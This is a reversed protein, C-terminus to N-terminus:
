RSVEIHRRAINKSIMGTVVVAVSNPEQGMVEKIKEQITDILRNTVMTISTGFRIVIFVRLDLGNEGFSLEMSNVEEGSNKKPLQKPLKGKHNSVLVKGDFQSVAEAVIRGILSKTVSITGISTDAITLM